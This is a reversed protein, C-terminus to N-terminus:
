LRCKKMRTLWDIGDGTEDLIEERSRSDPVCFDTMHEITEREEGCIRCMKDGWSMLGREENECRARAIMVINRRNTLYMPLDQTAIKQYDETCSTLTNTWYRRLMDDKPHDAKRGIRTWEVCTKLLENTGKLANEEFKKARETTLFHIPTRKTEYMLLSTRTSSRLGLTWKLYRRHLIELDEFEQRGFVECGYISGPLVLTDFMKMRLKFNDEFKRQGISWTEKLRSLAKTTTMEIHRDFKGTNTMIVGLYNYETVEELPCDKDWKWTVNSKRGSKSFTMIKSKDPNFTLELREFYKKTVRIADNMQGPTEALIIMDDAYMLCHIRKRRITVGGAMAKTLVKELDHTYISFLAPSLPCGQKVGTTLYFVEDEMEVPTADYIERICDIIDAPLGLKTMKAWMKGRPIKDFAAKLDIFFGYMRKGNQHTMNILTVLIFINDITSRGKRFGAQNDPILGMNDVQKMLRALLIQTWLKYVTDSICIGRYNKADNRCGKKYIPVLKSRRWEDPLSQGAGIDNITKLMADKIKDGSYIYAEAPIGDPGSSKRLKLNDIADDLEEKTIPTTLPVKNRLGGDITMSGGLTRKFHDVLDKNTPMTTSRRRQGREKNIFKWADHLNRVGALQEEFQIEEKKKKLKTLNKYERRKTRYEDWHGTAKANDRKAKVLLRLQLCEDDFWPRKCKVSLTKLQISQRIKVSIDKWDTENGDIKSDLTTRYITRYPQRWNMITKTDPTPTIRPAFETEMPFHDSEIVDGINFKTVNCYSNRSVCTYDIVSEGKYGIRTIHGNWDGDTNGNLILMDHHDLLKIWKRGETDTTPDMTSRKNGTIDGLHGIRANFDGTLITPMPGELLDNLRKKIKNLGSQNYVGILKTLEGDINLTASTIWDANYTDVSILEIHKDVALLLGGQSRGRINDRISPIWTCKFKKPLLQEVKETDKEEVFTEMLFVIDFDIIYNSITEIKTKLGQVNFTTM